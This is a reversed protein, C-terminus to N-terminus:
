CLRQIIVWTPMTPVLLFAICSKKNDGQDPMSAVGSILTCATQYLHGGAVFMLGSVMVDDYPQMLLAAYRM